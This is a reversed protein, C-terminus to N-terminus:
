RNEDELLREDFQGLYNYIMIDVIAQPATSAGTPWPGFWHDVIQEIAIFCEVEYGNASFFDVIQECGQAAMESINVKTQNQVIESKPLVIVSECKTIPVIATDSCEAAPLARMASLMPETRPQQRACNTFTRIIRETPGVGVNSAGIVALPQGVPAILIVVRSARGQETLFDSFMTCAQQAISEVKPIM